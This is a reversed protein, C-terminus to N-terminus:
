VRSFMLISLNQFVSYFKFGPKYCFLSVLVASSAMAMRPIVSVTVKVDPEGHVSLPCFLGLLARLVPNTRWQFGPITLPPNGHGEVTIRWLGPGVGSTCCSDKRHPGAWREGGEHLRGQNCWDMTIKEQPSDCGCKEM